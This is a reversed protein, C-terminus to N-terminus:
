SAKGEDKALRYGLSWQWAEFEYGYRNSYPNLGSYQGKRYAEYGAKEPLSMPMM